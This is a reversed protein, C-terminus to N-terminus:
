ETEERRAKKIENHLDCLPVPSFMSEVEGSFDQRLSRPISLSLKRKRAPRLSTKPKRPAPPCQKTVPIKHDLSTPTKFGDDDDDEVKFEGGTSLPIFRRRKECSFAATYSGCSDDKLEMKPRKLVPSQIDNNEDKVLFLSDSNDSM